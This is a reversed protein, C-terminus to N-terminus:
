LICKLVMKYVECLQQMCYQCSGYHVSAVAEDYTPDLSANCVADMSRYRTGAHETIGQRRCSDLM